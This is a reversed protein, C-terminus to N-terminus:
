RPGATLRLGRKERAYECVHAGLQGMKGLRGLGFSTQIDHADSEVQEDGGERGVHWHKHRDLVRVVLREFIFLRPRLPQIIYLRAERPHLSLRLLCRESAALDYGRKMSRRRKEGARGKERGRGEDYTHVSQRRGPEEM